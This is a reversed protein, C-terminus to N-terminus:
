KSGKRKTCPTALRVESDAQRGNQGDIAVDAVHSGRCMNRNAVLIGGKGGKLSLVFQSIPADPVTQFSSVLKGQRVSTTSRLNISIDGRLALLLTPLTRILRGTRKDKRVGKVFYVNGVLPHDLLPTKATARGIISSAPCRPADSQGKDFDCLGNANDPDLALTLPLEVKVAKINAQGPSQVLLARLGPHKGVATQSHGTLALKLRPRFPLAQCEADQFRASRQVLSGQQSHLSGEITKEACSTPNLFFNPRDVDVHITRLRVPVGKVITPLPDSVVTVRATSPDVFIAQRVVVVGLDFPGAVARVAVALGYPAGKYPGTLSVAGRLFFPRGSGAAVTATGVRSQAPCAGSDALKDSCLPVGKLRAALGSPMKVSLGDLYEQGERRNVTLNFPSLAGGRPVAVGADFEPLFETVGPCEVSFADALSRTHGAWSSLLASVPQVGCTPPMAVSARSGPKFRVLIRGVPFQPNDAFTAHLQGTAADAQVHGLLKLVLGGPGRLVLIVRFMDGSEPDDSQQEGVYVSGELPKELLPTEATVDGIKSAEPCQVTSDTGVGIQADSCSVLGDASSPNISMGVPLTVRVDRLHASALGAPSSNQPITLGVALGTTADAKASDTTVAISPDFLLSGCDTPVPDVDTASAGFAGTGYWSSVKITTMKPADCATPNTLFAIPRVGPNGFLQSGTGGVYTPDCLMTAPNLQDCRQADHAPASPDGWMTVTAGTVPTLGPANHTTLRLGHDSPRVSATLHMVAGAANFAFDALDDSSAKMAYVPAAVLPFDPTGDPPNVFFAQIRVLVVGVQSGAPCDTFPFSGPKLEIPLCKQVAEPNGTLGPPLDVVIDRLPAGFNIYDFVTPVPTVNFNVVLDPHGGARSM